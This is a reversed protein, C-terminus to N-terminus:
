DGQFILAVQEGMIGGNGTVFANRARKVQRDGARGSLQRIAEVVHGMGGALGTQGYGLQGGNTNTPFDGQWTFDHERLFAMGEGPRCFGAAELTLMVTISYCDYIQTVDIDTPTLRARAFACRAANAIPPDLPDEAMFISKTAVMEGHGVLWVPRNRAPKAAEESALVIAAGGYVPMVIELMRIPRAVMRSSIVDDETVPVTEFIAGPTMCANRRQHTVLRALARGDYGYVHAYRQAIMAYPANQGLHGYPIEFEAQPSGPLYSSTGFRRMKATMDHEAPWGLGPTLCLVVDAYGQEIAAAARWVMGAPTAGGLDAVDAFRAQVGLYEAIMAPQFLDTDAIGGISIGDVDALRLGADALARVALIAAMELSTMTRGASIKQAPFETLGVIAARMM